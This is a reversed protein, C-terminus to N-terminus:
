DQCLKSHDFCGKWSLSAEFVYLIDSGNDAVCSNVFAFDESSGFSVSGKRDESFGDVSRDFYSAPSSHPSFFGKGVSAFCGKPVLLRKPVTLLVPDGGRLRSSLGRSPVNDVFHLSKNQFSRRLLRVV